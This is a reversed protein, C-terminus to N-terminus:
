HFCTAHTNVSLTLVNLIILNDSMEEKEKLKEEIEEVKEELKFNFIWICVLCQVLVLVTLVLVFITYKLNTTQKKM